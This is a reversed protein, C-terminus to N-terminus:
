GLGERDDLWDAHIWQRGEDLQRPRREEVSSCRIRSGAPHIRRCATGPRPRHPLEVAFSPTV